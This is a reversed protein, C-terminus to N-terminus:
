GEGDKGAEVGYAEVLQEKTMDDIADLEEASEAVARAYSAWEAKVAARAPRKAEGPGSGDGEGGGQPPEQDEQEGPEPAQGDDVRRWGSAPDAALEEYQEAEESGPVPRVREAVYGGAFREYITM